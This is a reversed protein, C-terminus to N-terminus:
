IGKRKRKIIQPLILIRRFNIEGLKEKTKKRRTIRFCCLQLQISKIRLAVPNIGM